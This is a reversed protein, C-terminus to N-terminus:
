TVNSSSLHFTSKIFFFKKNPINLFKTYILLSFLFIVNNLLIFFTNFNFEQYSKKVKSIVLEYLLLFFISYIEIFGDFLHSNM